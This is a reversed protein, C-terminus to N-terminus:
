KARGSEMMSPLATYSVRLCIPTSSARSLPTSASTITGTGSEPTGEAMPKAASLPIREFQADDAVVVHAAGEDLRGVLDTVQADLHFMGGVTGYQIALAHHKDIIGDHAAGCRALDHVHHPSRSCLFHM